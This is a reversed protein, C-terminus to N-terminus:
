KCPESSAQEINIKDIGFAALYSDNLERFTEKNISYYIWKGERRDNVLSNERLVALHHSVLSQSLDLSEYIKCVCLEGEALLSLIKLRTEDAIVRLLESLDAIAAFQGKKQDLKELKLM